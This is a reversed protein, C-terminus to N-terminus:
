YLLGDALTFMNRNNVQCFSIEDSKGLFQRLEKVTTLTTPVGEIYVTSVSALDQECTVDNGAWGVQLKRSQLELKSIMVMCKEASKIDKFVVWGYGKSEGTRQNTILKFKFFHYITLSTIM